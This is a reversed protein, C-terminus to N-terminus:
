ESSRGCNRPVAHSPLNRREETFTAFRELAKPHSTNVVRGFSYDSLCICSSELADLMMCILM